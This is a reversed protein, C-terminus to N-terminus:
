RRRWRARRYKRRKQRKEITFDKLAETTLSLQRSFLEVGLENRSVLHVNWSSEELWTEIAMFNLSGDYAVVRWPNEEAAASGPFIKGHLPSTTLEFSLQGLLARPFQMIETMHRDGSVFVFPTPIEKLQKLFKEFSRPHNGEYSEYKHYGGFFQDGSILWTPLESTKLANLAWAEQAVGFHEGDGAPDRFSRDDLFTFHMGRLQLRTSVGPGTIVNDIPFAPLFFTKFIAQAEDRLAYSASGDKQGYDNDDWISHVPILKKWRYVDLARRHDVYRQWVLAPDSIEKEDQAAYVNDGILFVWEPNQAAVSAWMKAQHQSQRIDSCAGVVFRLREGQNSFLRFTRQDIVRGQSKVIFQFDENIGSLNTFQVQHMAWDSSAREVIQKSTPVVTEGNPRIVIFDASSGQPLLVNFETSTENTALQLISAGEKHPTASNHACSVLVLLLFFLKM